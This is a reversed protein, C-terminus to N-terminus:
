FCHSDQTDGLCLNVGYEVPVFLMVFTVPPFRSYRKAM